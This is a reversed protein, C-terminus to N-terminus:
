RSLKLALRIIATATTDNGPRVISFLQRFSFVTLLYMRLLFQSLRSRHKAYYRLQSKRYEIKITQVVSPLSAGGIHIISTSPNYLVSWGKVRIRRCLDADEFYMFFSEDFGGIDEFVSRRVMLAAGTLWDVEYPSKLFPRMRRQFESPNEKSLRQLKKVKWENWLSPDYGFSLQLTGDRNLLRPGVAAVGAREELFSHLTAPADSSLITDNNLFFLYKGSALKAGANNACGFGRNDMLREFRFLPYEEQLVRLDDGESRNDVVIVELGPSYTVISRLANRTHEYGNYNVIIISVSM